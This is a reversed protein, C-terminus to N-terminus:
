INSIKKAMTFLQTGFLPEYEAFPQLLLAAIAPADDPGALRIARDPQKESMVLVVGPHRAPPEWAPRVCEIIMETFHWEVASCSATAVQGTRLVGGRIM